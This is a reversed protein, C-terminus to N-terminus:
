LPTTFWAAALSLKHDRLFVMKAHDKYGSVVVIQQFGLDKFRSRAEALLGAGATAWLEPSRVYYDDIAATPGADYVPPTPMERGFLFGVIEDDAAAVLCVTREAGLLTKLYDASAQAIGQRRKWFVPEYRAYDDRRAELIKVVGKLDDAECERVAISM